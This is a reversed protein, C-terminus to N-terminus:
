HYLTALLNPLHNIRVITFLLAQRDNFLPVPCLVKIAPVTPVIRVAPRSRSALFYRISPSDADWAGITGPSCKKECHTRSPRSLEIPQEDFLATSFPLPIRVQSAQTISSLREVARANSTARSFANSSWAHSSPRHRRPPRSGLQIVYRLRPGVRM